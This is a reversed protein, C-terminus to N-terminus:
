RIRGFGWSYTIPYIIFTTGAFVFGTFVLTAFVLLVLCAFGVITFVIAACSAAFVLAWCLFNDIKLIASEWSLYNFFGRRVM